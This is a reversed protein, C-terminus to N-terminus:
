RNISAKRFGKIVDIVAFAVFLLIIGIQFSDKMDFSSKMLGELYAIFDPNILISNSFMVIVVISSIAHRVFNLTAVKMTWQGVVFKYCVLTVEVAIAIVVILWYSQLVEQNFSPITLQLKGHVSEYVGLLKVGNFYIATFIGIELLSGFIKSKAIKKEKLIPPISKLDDPTWDKLSTKISLKENSIDTRELIAFILTIWFFSQILTGLIEIIGKGIVALVINMVAENSNYSLISESISVILAITAAIPLIMKLLTVYIGFYNPGILHMPRDLYGSALTVPSGLKALVEKEDIETFNEPLMDEITSQLELAIDKRHKEPLRRTVEQIYMDILHM